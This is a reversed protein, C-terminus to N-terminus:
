SGPFFIYTFFHLITMTLETPFGTFTLIASDFIFTPGISSDLRFHPFILRHNQAYDFKQAHHNSPTSAEGENKHTIYLVTWLSILLSMIKSLKCMYIVSLPLLFDTLSTTDWRRVFGYRGDILSFYWCDCVRVPLCICTFSDVEFSPKTM